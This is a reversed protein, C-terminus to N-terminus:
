AVSRVLGRRGARSGAARHIMTMVISFVRDRRDMSGDSAPFREAKTLKNSFHFLLMLRDAADLRASTTSCTMSLRYTTGWKVPRARMRSTPEPPPNGTTTAAMQRGVEDNM